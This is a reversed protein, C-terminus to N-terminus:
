FALMDYDIAFSKNNVIHIGFFGTSISLTVDTSSILTSIKHRTTGVGVGVSLTLATLDGGSTTVIYSHPTASSLTIDIADNAPVTGTEHRIDGITTLIGNLGSWVGGSEVLKTSNQTPAADIGIDDIVDHLMQQFTGDLIMADIKNNVEQQVDLNDFFDEVYTKLDNWAEETDAWALKTEDWEGKTEAWAAILQQMQQLLYDANMEHLDTYPYLNIPIAM